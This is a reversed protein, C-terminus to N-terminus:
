LAIEKIIEQAQRVTTAMELKGNWQGYRGLLSIGFLNFTSVLADREDKSIGWIRGSPWSHRSVTKLDYDFYRELHYKVVSEEHETMPALSEMSIIGNLITIRYPPFKPDSVYLSVLWNPVINQAKYNTIHIPKQIFDVESFVGCARCMVPM